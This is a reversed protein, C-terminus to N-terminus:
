RYGIYGFIWAALAVLSAAIPVPVFLVAPLVIVLALATGVLAGLTGAVMRAPSRYDVRAEARGLATDLVRGLFGGAVYGFLCGLMGGIGQAETGLSRAAWFGAATSLVVVFLRVGEVFM